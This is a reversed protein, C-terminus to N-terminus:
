AVLESASAILREGLPTMQAHNQLIDLGAFFFKKREDILGKCYIHEAQPILNQSFAKNLIYYRRALVFVAHYIGILPRKDARVPSDHKELPNLLLPDDKALLHVYLHAQEHVLFDLAYTLTDAEFLSNKYIMGFLDISSGAKLGKAKLILIEGVLEQFESFFDPFYSQYLQMAQQILAKAEEFEKAPLPFIQIDRALGQSFTMEVLPVYYEGLNALNIHEIGQIEFNDECLRLAIKKVQQVNQTEVANYFDSHLLSLLGSFKTAPNLSDLKQSAKTFLDSPMAEDCLGLLYKFSNLLSSNFNHRLELARGSLPLAEALYALTKNSFM